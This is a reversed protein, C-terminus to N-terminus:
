ISKAINDLIGNLFASSDTSGFKKGIEIAENIVVNAPIERELYLLEFCAIRLINRDVHAMRGIKWHSSHGQIKEDIEQSFEQVGHVLKKAYDWLEPSSDFSERYLALSQESNISQQYEWQFLIQLALERSKRRLGKKM